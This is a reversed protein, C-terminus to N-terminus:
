QRGKARKDPAPFEDLQGEFESALGRLERRFDEEAYKRCYGDTCRALRADRGAELQRLRAQYRSESTEITQTKVRKDGWEADLEADLDEDACAVGAGLGAGIVLGYLWLLRRTM